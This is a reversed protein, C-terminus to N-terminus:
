DSLAAKPLEYVEGPEVFIVLIDGRTEYSLKATSNTSDPIGNTFYINRVQGNQMGVALTAGGDDRRRLEANCSRLADGAVTACPITGLSNKGDTGALTTEQALAPTSLAALALIFRSM